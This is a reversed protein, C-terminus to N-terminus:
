KPPLYVPSGLFGINAEIQTVASQRAYIYDNQLLPILACDLVNLYDKLNLIPVGASYKQETM